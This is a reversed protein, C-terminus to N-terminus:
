FRVGMTFTVNLDDANLPFALTLFGNDGQLGFGSSLRFRMDGNRNWVSGADLFAGVIRYRYELSSNFVREGGAPAIDFKNWGRLTVTDGLSFREFLPANGTLTGGTFRFILLSRNEGFVYDTHIVHRTYISESDLRHNGSRIEYGARLSHRRTDSSKAWINEFDLAAVAANTNRQHIEPYQIQLDSLSVGAKLRLRPDFAFTLSPEFTSRERYVSTRDAEVTSPQWREHYRSYRLALGLRDTGLKVSEFGFNFGAYRELLQDQDDALGFFLRVDKTHVFNASVVASFNQKSHYLFHQEPQAIFPIWPVNRVEFVVVIHQRDSGKVVRKSVNHKPRLEDQMQNLIQNAKDQDLKVGILSNINDRISQSLKSEDFGHIEVREVTYRSNVNSEGDNSGRELLFLVKVSDPRAGALLRVTTMFDPQDAQLRMLVADAAQQDFPEGVLKQVSDRIDKSVDDEDIGSIEASEVIGRPNVGAQQSQASAFVFPFLLVTIVHLCSTARM